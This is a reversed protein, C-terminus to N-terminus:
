ANLSLNKALSILSTRDSAMGIGGSEAEFDEGGANMHTQLVIM